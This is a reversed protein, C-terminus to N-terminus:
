SKKYSVKLHKDLVCAIDYLIVTKENGQCSLLDKM